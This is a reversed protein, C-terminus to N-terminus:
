YSLLVISDTYNILCFYLDFLASKYKIKCRLFRGSAFFEINKLHGYPGARVGRGQRLVTFSITTNLRSIDISGYM